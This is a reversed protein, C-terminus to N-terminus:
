NYECFTQKLNARWKEGGLIDFYHRHTEVEEHGCHSQHVAIPRNKVCVGVRSCDVLVSISIIICMKLTSVRLAWVLLYAKYLHEWVM